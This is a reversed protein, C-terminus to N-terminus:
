DTFMGGEQERPGTGTTRASSGTRVGVLEDRWGRFKRLQANEGRTAGASAEEKEIVQIVESLSRDLKELASRIVNPNATYSEPEDRGGHGPVSIPPAATLWPSHSVILKQTLRLLPFV